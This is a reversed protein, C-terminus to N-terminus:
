TETKHTRICGCHLGQVFGTDLQLDETPGVVVMMMMMMVVVVVVMM